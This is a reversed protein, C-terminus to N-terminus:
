VRQGCIRASTSVLDQARRQQDEEIITEAMGEVKKEVTDEMHEDDERTHKKLTRSQPDFTRHKIVSEANESAVTTTLTTSM